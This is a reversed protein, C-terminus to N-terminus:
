SNKKDDKRKFILFSYKVGKFEGSGLNQSQEFQDFPPFFTDAKSDKDIMTLYLRDALGITQSYVQGGGIIFIEGEGAAMLAEEVSGVVLCDEVKFGKDRSLIINKRKPLPHGISEYTRQGMVVSHGMTTRKFFEIDEPIKWVLDNKYGLERNKGIAAILSIIQTKNKNM